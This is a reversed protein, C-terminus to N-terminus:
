ADLNSEEPPLYEAGPSQFKIEPLVFDLISWTYLALFICLFILTMHPLIAIFKHSCSKNCLLSDLNVNWLDLFMGCVSMHKQSFYQFTNDLLTM